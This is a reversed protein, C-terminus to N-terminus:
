GFLEEKVQKERFRVAILTDAQILGSTLHTIGTRYGPPSFCGYGGGQFLQKYSLCHSYCAAFFPLGLSTYLKKKM